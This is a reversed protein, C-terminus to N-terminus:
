DMEAEDTEEAAAGVPALMNVDPSKKQLAWLLGATVLLSVAALWISVPTDKAPDSTTAGHQFLYMWVVQSGNNLVHVLIALWLNGSIVYVAGLIIGLVVRPMFGLMEGHIASFVLATIVVSLWVKRTSNLILRQLVGRFFLEEGIAPVVSVLLLNIFLDSLRPMRLMVQILKEAQAQMERAEKPVKWTQNWEATLGVFPLVCILAMLGLVLPWAKPFTHLGLYRMPEPQWLYAFVAAPVFYVVITYLLQTIKLYGILNPDTLDGNQIEVITHGTLAPLISGLAFIYLFFFGFFFGLFTVFQLFNPSQKLYGTM